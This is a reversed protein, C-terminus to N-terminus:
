QRYTSAPTYLISLVSGGDLHYDLWAYIASSEVIRRIYNRTEAYPVLESFLIPDSSLGSKQWSRVRGAGANYAALAQPWQGLLRFQDALYFSGLRLNLAPDALDPEAIKLRKAVMLATSPMLQALGRAGPGSQAGRDFNSETRTLAYMLWEPVTAAEVTTMAAQMGDLYPRPYFDTLLDRDAPHGWRIRVNELLRLGQRFRGAQVMLRGLHSLAAVGMDGRHTWAYDSAADELGLTWYGESVTETENLAALALVPRVVLLASLDLTEGRLWKAVIQYYLSDNQTSLWLTKAQFEPDTAGAPDALQKVRASILALRCRLMVPLQGALTAGLRELAGWKQRGGIKLIALEFVDAFYEPNDCDKAVALFDELNFLPGALDDASDTISSLLYWQLRQRDITALSGLKELTRASEYGSRFAAIAQTSDSKARALRGKLELLYPVLVSGRWEPDTAVLNTQFDNLVALGDSFRGALRAANYLDRVLMLPLIGARRHWERLEPAEAALPRLALWAEVPQNHALLDKASLLKLLFDDKGSRVTQVMALIEGHGPRAEVGLTYAALATRSDDDLKTPDGRKQLAQRALELPLWAPELSEGIGLLRKATQAKRLSDQWERAEQWALDYHATQSFAEVRVHHFDDASQQFEARNDANLVQFLATSQNLLGEYDKLKLSCDLWARFALDHWTKVPKDLQARYLRRADALHGGPVLSEALYFLAGPHISGVFQQASVDQVMVKTIAPDNKAIYRKLAALDPIIQAQSCSIFGLLTLALLLLRKLRSDRNM